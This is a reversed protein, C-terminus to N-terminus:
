VEYLKCGTKSKVKLLFDESEYSDIVLKIATLGETHPKQVSFPCPKGYYKWWYYFEAFLSDDISIIYSIPKRKM